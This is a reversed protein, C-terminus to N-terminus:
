KRTFTFTAEIPAEVCAGGITVTGSIVKTDKPVQATGKITGTCGQAPMSYTHDITWVGDKVTGELTADVVAPETIKMTGSVKGKADVAFTTLGTYTAQPVVFSVDYSPAKTAQATNFAFLLAPILILRM